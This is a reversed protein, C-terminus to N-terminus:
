REYLKQDLGNFQAKEPELRHLNLALCGKKCQKLFNRKRGANEKDGIVDKASLNGAQDLPVFDAICIPANDRRRPDSRFSFIERRWVNEKLEEYAEKLAEIQMEESEHHYRGM